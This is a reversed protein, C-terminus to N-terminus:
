VLEGEADMGDEEEEESWEGMMREAEEAKRQVQALGSIEEVYGKQDIAKRVFEWGDREYAGLIKPSCAACCDYARGKVQITQWTSM